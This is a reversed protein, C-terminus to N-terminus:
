VMKGQEANKINNIYTMIEELQTFILYEESYIHKSFYILQVGNLICKKYKETDRKTIKLFNNESKEETWKKSRYYVKQYHQEGQCEIAINYEPLYFDLSQRGLWKARYQPIFYVNKEKLFCSMETEMTSNTCNPCGHFNLHHHPTQEFVGHKKCIIKVKTFANHYDVLSYDYKDGHIKQAEVIFDNTSKKLKKISAEKACFPCGRGQLHKQPQQYFIGHKPCVISIKTTGNKYEVLSYDYKDNHIKKSAEIFSLTNYRNHKKHCKPCGSKNTIHNHPTQWFEGHEPCIICVKQTSKEYVVKSYDYKNGHIEKAKEIFTQTNTIM